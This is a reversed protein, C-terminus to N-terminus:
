TETLRFLALQRLFAVAIRGEKLLCLASIGGRHRGLVYTAELGSVNSLRLTGDLNASLVNGNETIALSM